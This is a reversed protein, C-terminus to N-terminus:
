LTNHCCSVEDYHEQLLNRIQNKFHAYITKYGLLLAKTRISNKAHSHGQQKSFICKKRTQMSSVSEQYKNLKRFSHNVNESKQKIEKVGQWLRRLFCM